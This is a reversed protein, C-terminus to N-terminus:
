NFRPSTCSFICAGCHPVFTFQTLGADFPHPKTSAQVARWDDDTPNPPMPVQTRRYGKEPYLWKCKVGKLRAYQSKVGDISLSVKGTMAKTPCAKICAYGCAKPQCLEPGTYMPSGELPADTIISVLRQRPGFEPTLVLGSFGFQGLGAAV